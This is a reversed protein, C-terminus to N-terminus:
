IFIATFLNDFLHALFWGDLPVIFRNLLTNVTDFGVDRSSLDIVNVDTVSLSGATKPIDTFFKFNQSKLLSSKLYSKTVEPDLNILLINKASKSSWYMACMFEYFCSSSQDRNGVAECYERSLFAVFVPVKKILGSMDNTDFVCFDPNGLCIKLRSGSLLRQILTHGTYDAGKGWFSFYVDYEQKSLVPNSSIDGLCISYTERLKSANLNHVLRRGGYSRIESCSFSGSKVASWFAFCEGTDASTFCEGPFVILVTNRFMFTNRKKSIVNKVNEFVILRYWNESCPSPGQIFPVLPICVLTKYVKRSVLCFLDFLIRFWKQWLEGVTSISNSTLLEVQILKCDAVKCIRVEEFRPKVVIHIVDEFVFIEEFAFIKPADIADALRVCNDVVRYTPVLEELFKTILGLPLFSISKIDEM